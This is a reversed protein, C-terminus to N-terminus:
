MIAQARIHPQRLRHTQATTRAHTRCGPCMGRDICAPARRDLWALRAFSVQEPPQPLAPCPMAVLSAKAVKLVRPVAPTLFARLLLTCVKAQKIVRTRSSSLKILCTLLCARSAQKRPFLLEDGRTPSLAAGRGACGGKELRWRGGELCVSLGASPCVSLCVFLCVSLCVSLCRYLCSPSLCVSASSPTCKCVACV